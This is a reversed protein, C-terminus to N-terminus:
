APGYWVTASLPPEAGPPREQLNPNDIGTLDDKYIIRLQFGQRTIQATNLSYINKMMLNWMPLQLNNRLTASKLLKLVLVENANRSQYDETLEGVKYRRGQYTYEYAVALIEDNRLPTVLSIYGLEPQLKYERDTLRKAGRLLDYDTGKTLQYTSTLIDNTRDVQRFSNAADATLRNYLSNAANDSPTRNNRSFPPLNPNAQSYPNGEGLDQFGAINRLTETTNTRNTVYVEVRTVNVGSTVQPLTKLSAEYNARFFQSLFFHRNEDYQDARIEFPRNSTGGRLVIENKRSRQQSAVLTANLKGFRLQTKIGFLNQVGPILQSNVAWSINGVELGQLISENQPTFGPTTGNLGPAGPLNPVSPLNPVGPLGQGTGFAPLGGGPRYNLKLANEFNFSAKTDFNALVGLKEGIKGNFNIAIQENFLFNGNRRQRVPLVPNDIFQYLYGFDLTVFGNPKFDM